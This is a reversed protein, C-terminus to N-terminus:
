WTPREGQQPADAVEVDTASQIYQVFAQSQEAYHKTLSNRSAERKAKSMSAATGEALLQSGSYAGVVFTPTATTRGAEKHLKFTLPEQNADELCSQLLRQPNTILISDAPRAAAFEKQAVDDVIQRVGAIGKVEVIAAIVAFFSSRLLLDSQAFQHLGFARAYQSISPADMVSETISQLAPGPLRPFRQFVHEAFLAHFYGQGLASMRQSPSQWKDNSMLARKLAALTQAGDAKLNLRGALAAIEAHIPQGRAIAAVRKHENEQSHDIPARQHFAHVGDASESSASASSAPTALSTMRAVPLVAGRAPAAASVLRHCLTSALM